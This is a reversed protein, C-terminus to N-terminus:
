ADRRVVTGDMRKKLGSAKSGPMPRGRAEAGIQRAERRKAEAITAIDGPTKRGDCLPCLCQANDLTPQGTLGDPNIHDCRWRGPILVAYCREGTELKGECRGSARQFAAVKIRTPFEKRM